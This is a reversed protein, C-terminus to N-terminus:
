QGVRFSTCKKFYNETHKSQVCNSYTNQDAADFKQSISYLKDPKSGASVRPKEARCSM